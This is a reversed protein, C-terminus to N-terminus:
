RKEEKDPEDAQFMGKIFIKVFNAMSFRYMHDLIWLSDVLFYLLSGRIGVPRYVERATSIEVETIKALKVQEEIEKATKKTTELAEILEVDALIDGQSSSLRMLIDDELGKLQIKFNNQRELLATKQAEM